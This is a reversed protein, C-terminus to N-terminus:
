SAIGQKDRVLALLLHETGVYKSKMNSAEHAAIELAQKARPTFPVQGITLASSQSVTAEEISQRLEELDM